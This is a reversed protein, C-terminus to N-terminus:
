KAQNTGKLTEATSSGPVANAVSLMKYVPETTNNVFGIDAPKVRAEILVRFARDPDPFRSETKLVSSVQQDM